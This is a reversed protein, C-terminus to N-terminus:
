TQEQGDMASAPVSYLVFPSVLDLRLSIHFHRIVSVGVASDKMILVHVAVTYLM